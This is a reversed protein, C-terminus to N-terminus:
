CKALLDRLLAHDNVMGGRNGRSREVEEGNPVRHPTSPWLHGYEMRHPSVHRVWQLRAWHIWVQADFYINERAYERPHLM